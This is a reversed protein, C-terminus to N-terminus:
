CADSEVQVLCGSREGGGEREERRKKLGRHVNTENKRAMKRKKGKQTKEGDGM